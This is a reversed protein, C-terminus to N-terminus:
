QPVLQAHSRASAVSGRPPTTVRAVGTPAGPADASTDMASDHPALQQQQQPPPPPPSIPPSASAARPEDSMASSDSATPSSCLPSAAAAASAARPAAAAVTVLLPPSAGVSPRARDFRLLTENRAFEEPNVALDFGVMFLFEIELGNLEPTTVGGIRAYFANNFYVDDFFKAAVMLATLAARHVTLSCLTFQPHRQIRDLLVYTLLVTTNSCEALDVLRRFYDNISVQPLACSHFKSVFTSVRRDGEVCREGLARAVAASLVRQEAAM